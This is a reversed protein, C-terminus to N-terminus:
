RIVALTNQTWKYLPTQCSDEVENALYAVDIMAVQLTYPM